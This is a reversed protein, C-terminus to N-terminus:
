KSALETPLVNHWARAKAFVVEARAKIPAYKAELEQYASETTVRGWFENQLKTIDAVVSEMDRILPIPTKTRLFEIRQKSTPYKQGDLKPLSWQIVQVCGAVGNRERPAHGILDRYPKALEEALENTQVYYSKKDDTVKQWLSNAKTNFTASKVMSMGVKTGVLTVMGILVMAAFRKM